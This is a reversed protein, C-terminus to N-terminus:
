VLSSAILEASMRSRPPLRLAGGSECQRPDVVGFVASASQWRLGICIELAKEITVGKGGPQFGRSQM